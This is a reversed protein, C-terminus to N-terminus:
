RSQPAPATVQGAPKVNWLVFVYDQFAGDAGDRFAVLYANPIPAGGRAHLPFVRAAHKDPGSNRQDESYVTRKGAKVWLGFTAEGPDFSAAGDSELEPNLTQHQGAALTALTEPTAVANKVKYPGYPRPGDASFRAVPNLAVPTPTARTFLPMPVEEGLTRAPTAAASRSPGALGSSPQGVDVAYGLAEVVEALSPENEGARGATALGSLDAGPGDEILPGTQFRLLARHVGLAAGAPPAFTVGVSLQGKPPVIAPLKPPDRLQFQAAEDGLLPLARVTVPVDTLNRATVTETVQGAGRAASFALDWPALQLEERVKENRLGAGAPAVPAPATVPRPPSASACGAVALWALWEPFRQARRSPM